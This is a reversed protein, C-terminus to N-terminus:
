RRVAYRYAHGHKYATFEFPSNFKVDFQEMAGSDNMHLIVRITDPSKVQWTGQWLKGARVTGNPLFLWPVPHYDGNRGNEAYEVLWQTHNVYIRTHSASAITEPENLMTADQALATLPLGGLLTVGLACGTLWTKLAPLIPLSVHPKM